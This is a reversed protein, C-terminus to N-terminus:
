RLIGFAFLLVMVIFAIGSLELLAMLALATYFAKSNTIRCYTLLCPYDHVIGDLTDWFIEFFSPHQLSM